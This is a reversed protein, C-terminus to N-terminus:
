LITLSVLYLAIVITQTIYFANTLISEEVIPKDISLGNEVDEDFVFYVEDSSGRYVELGAVRGPVAAIAATTQNLTIIRDEIKLETTEITTTEGEVVLDGTIRVTGGSANPGVDLKIEGGDTVALIYDGDIKSYRAM